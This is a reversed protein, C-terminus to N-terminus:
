QTFNPISYIIVTVTYVVLYGIILNVLLCDSTSSVMRSNILSVPKGGVLASIARRSPNLDGLAASSCKFARQLFPVEGNGETQHINIYWLDHSTLMEGLTIGPEEIYEDEVVVETYCSTTLTGVLILGFLLKLTKM